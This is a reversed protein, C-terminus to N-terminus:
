KSASSHATAGMASRQEVARQIERVWMAQVLQLRHGMVIALNLLIKQGQVPQAEFYRQLADRPIAIVETELPVSARLTFRYPPIMASWGVLQGPASEEILINEERERVKIPLTLRVRGREILFVRDADDGLQFLPGGAPVKMRTGLALVHEIEAPSLGKLLEYTM